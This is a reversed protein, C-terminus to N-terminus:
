ESSASWVASGMQKKSWAILDLEENLWLGRFTFGVVPYYRYVIAVRSSTTLVVATYQRRVLALVKETVCNFRSLAALVM